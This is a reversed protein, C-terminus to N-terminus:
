KLGTVAVGEIFFKQCVLFVVIIPLMGMLTYACVAPSGFESQFQTQLNSMVLQMPYLQEVGSLYLLPGSYNNYGGVFGFIFQALIAPVTLPLMIQIYLRINSMGDLKGAEFLENPVGTFFQRLFFMTGVSGFLGPIVLPLATYVWGIKDYMLYTPVALCSAPLIMTVLSVYFLVNRGRFKMKSFAFASLGSFFLGVVLTPIVQWLSNFFGLLILNQHTEMTFSLDHTFVVTYANGTPNKPWWIFNMSSYIETTPTFSTVILVYFPLLLLLTFLTLWVIAVATFATSRDKIKGDKSKRHKITKNEKVATDTM